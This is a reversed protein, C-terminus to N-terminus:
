QIKDKQQDNQWLLTSVNVIAALEEGSKSELDAYDGTYYYVADVEAAGKDAECLMFESLMKSGTTLRDWKNDSVCFFLYNKEQGNTTDIVRKIEVINERSGQLWGVINGEQLQISVNNEYPVIEEQNQLTRVAAFGTAAILIVAVVAALIQKKLIKKKVSNLSAAKQKEYGPLLEADAEALQEGAHEGEKMAVYVTRCTACETLHEEVANKSEDSCVDDIYLPLLDQIIKCSYKM